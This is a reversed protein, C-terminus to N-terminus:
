GVESWNITATMGNSKAKVKTISENQTFWISVSDSVYCTCETIGYKRAGYSLPESNLIDEKEMIMKTVKIQEFIAFIILAIMIIKVVMNKDIKM